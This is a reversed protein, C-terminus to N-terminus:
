LVRVYQLAFVGAAFVAAFMCFLTVASQAERHESGRVADAHDYGESMRLHDNPMPRVYTLPFDLPTVQGGGAVLEALRRLRFTVRM